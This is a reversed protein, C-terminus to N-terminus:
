CNNRVYPWLGVKVKRIKGKDIGPLHTLESDLNLRYNHWRTSDPAEILHLATTSM